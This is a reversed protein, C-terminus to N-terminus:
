DHTTTLTWNWASTWDPLWVWVGGLLRDVRRYLMVGVLVVVTMLVLSPTSLLSSKDPPLSSKDPPLSSKDPEDGPLDVKLNSSSREDVKADVVEVEEM